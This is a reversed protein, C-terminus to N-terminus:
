CGATGRCRKRLARPLRTGAEDRLQYRPSGDGHALREVVADVARQHESEDQEHPYAGQQRPAGSTPRAYAMRQEDGPHDRQGDGSDSGDHQADRDGYDDDSDGDAREDAYGYELLPHASGYRPMAGASAGVGYREELEHRRVAGAVAAVDDMQGDDHEREADDARREVVHLAVDKRVMPSSAVMPAYVTSNASTRLSVNASRVSRVASRRM